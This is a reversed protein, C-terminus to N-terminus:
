PGVIINCTRVFDTGVPYRWAGIQDVIALLYYFPYNLLM